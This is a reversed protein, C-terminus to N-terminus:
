PTTNRRTTNKEAYLMQYYEKVTSAIERPDKTTRTRETGGVDKWTYSPEEGDEWKLAKKMENVWQQSASAKYSQFMARTCRDSRDAMRTATDKEDLKIEPRELSLLEKHASARVRTLDPTLGKHNITRRIVELNMRLQKIRPVDVKRAADTAKLLEHRIM